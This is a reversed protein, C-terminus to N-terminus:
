LLERQRGGGTHRRIQLVLQRSHGYRELDAAPVVVQEHGGTDKLYPPSGPKLAGGSLRRYVVTNIYIVGGPTYIM